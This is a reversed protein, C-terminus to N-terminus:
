RPGGVGPLAGQAAPLDRHRDEPAPDPVQDANANTRGQAFRYRPNVWRRYAAVAAFALDLVLDDPWGTTIAAVLMEDLKAAAVDPIRSALAELVDAMWEQSLAVESVLASKSAAVRALVEPSPKPKLGLSGDDRIRVAVGLESLERLTIPLPKATM